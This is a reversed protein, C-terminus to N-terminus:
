SSNKKGYTFIIFLELVTSLSFLVIIKLGTFIFLFSFVAILAYIVLSFFLFYDFANSFFTMPKNKLFVPNNM